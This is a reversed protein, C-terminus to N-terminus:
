RLRRAIHVLPVAATVVTVLLFVLDLQYLRWDVINGLLFQRITAVGLIVAILDVGPNDDPRYILYIAPVFLIVVLLVVTSVYWPSRKITIACEDIGYPKEAEGEELKVDTVYEGWRNAKSVVMSDSLHINVITTDLKYPQWAADAPGSVYVEPRIGIQYIDYPFKGPLGSPYIPTEKLRLIATDDWRRIESGSELELSQSIAGLGATPSRLGHLMVSMKISDKSLQDYKAANLILEGSILFQGNERDKIRLSLYNKEYRAQGGSIQDFDGCGVWHGRWADGQKPARFYDYGIFITLGAILVALGVPLYKYLLHIAKRM